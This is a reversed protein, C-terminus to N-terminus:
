DCVSAGPFPHSLFTVTTLGPSSSIGRADLLQPPWPCSRLPCGALGGCGPVCLGGAGCPPTDEEVAVQTLIGICLAHRGPLGPFNPQLAPCLAPLWLLGPVADYLPNGPSVWVVVTPVVVNHSGHLGREM